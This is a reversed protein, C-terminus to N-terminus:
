GRDGDEEFGVRATVIYTPRGKVEGYIRGIYEGPIGILEVGVIFLVAASTSAWGAVAEENL